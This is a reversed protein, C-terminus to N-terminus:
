PTTGGGPHHQKAPCVVLARNCATAPGAIVCIAMGTAHIPHMRQPTATRNHRGLRHIGVDFVGDQIDAILDARKACATASCGRWPIHIIGAIVEIIHAGAHSKICVVVDGPDM